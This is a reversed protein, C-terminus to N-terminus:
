LTMLEDQLLPLLLHLRLYVLLLGERLHRGRERAETLAYLGILRASANKCALGPNM